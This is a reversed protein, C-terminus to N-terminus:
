RSTVTASFEVKQRKWKYYLASDLLPQDNSRFHFAVPRLQDDEPWWDKAFWEGRFATAQWQALRPELQKGQMPVRKSEPIPAVLGLVAALETQGFDIGEGFVEECQKADARARREIMFDRKAIQADVDDSPVPTQPSNSKTADDGKCASNCHWPLIAAILAVKLCELRIRAM